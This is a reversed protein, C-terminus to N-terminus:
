SYAIMRGHYGVLLWLLLSAAALLRAPMPAPDATRGYVIRFAAANVLAVTILLLKTRFTGSAAVATDAAFMVFGSGALLILGSIGLPTLARALPQLPLSRFLGLLRLDVLGIGGLLLVLGLLHVVNAAPYAYSSEAAWTAFTTGGIAEAAWALAL